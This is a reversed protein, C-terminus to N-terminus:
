DAVVADAGVDTTGAGDGCVVATAFSIMTQTFIGEWM